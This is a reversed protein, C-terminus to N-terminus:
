EAEGDEAWIFTEDWTICVGTESIQVDDANCIGNDNYYCTEVGCTIMKLVENKAIKRQNNESLIIRKNKTMLSWKMNQTNKGGVSRVFGGM